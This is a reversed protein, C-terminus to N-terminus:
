RAKRSIAATVIPVAMAALSGLPLRRLAITVLCSSAALAAFKAWPYAGLQSRASCNAWRVSSRSVLGVRARILDLRVRLLDIDKELIEHRLRAREEPTAVTEVIPDADDSGYLFIDEQPIHAKKLM